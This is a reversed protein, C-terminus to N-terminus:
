GLRGYAMRWIMQMRGDAMSTLSDILILCREAPRIVEVIHRLATFLDSLEATFDGAPSLNKNRLGGGGMKHVVFGACGEILSGDSYFICSAGYGSTVTLLERPAVLPYM